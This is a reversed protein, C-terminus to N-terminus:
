VGSVIVLFFPRKVKLSVTEQYVDYCTNNAIARYLCCTKTKGTGDM